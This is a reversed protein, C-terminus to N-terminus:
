PSLTVTVSNSSIRGLALKRRMEYASLLVKDNTQPASPVPDNLVIRIAYRGPARREADWPWERFGHEFADSHSRTTSCPDEYRWPRTVLTEGPALDIMLERQIELDATAKLHLDKADDRSMGSAELVRKARIQGPCHGLRFPFSVAKVERGDPLTLYLSFLRAGLNFGSKFFSNEERWPITSPGVNQIELRYWFSDGAKLKTKHPILTAKLGMQAGDPVFSKPAPRVLEARDKDAQAAERPQRWSGRLWERQQEMTLGPFGSPVETATPPDLRNEPQEAVVEVPNAAPPESQGRCGSGLFFLLLLVRPPRIM